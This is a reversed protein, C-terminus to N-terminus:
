KEKFRPKMDDESKGFYLGYEVPCEYWGLPAPFDDVSDANGGNVINTAQYEDCGDLLCAEFIFREDPDTPKQTLGNWEDIQHFKYVKLYEKM